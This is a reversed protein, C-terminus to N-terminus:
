NILILQFQARLLKIETENGFNSTSGKMMPFIVTQLRMRIQRSDHDIGNNTV